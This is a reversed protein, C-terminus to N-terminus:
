RKDLFSKTYRTRPVPYYDGHYRRNFPTNSSGVREQRTLKYITTANPADDAAPVEFVYRSNMNIVPEGEPTKSGEM